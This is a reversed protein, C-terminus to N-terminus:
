SHSETVPYRIFGSHLKDEAQGPPQSSQVASKRVPEENPTPSHACAERKFQSCALIAKLRKEAQFIPAQWLTPELYATKEAEQWM